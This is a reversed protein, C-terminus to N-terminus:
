GNLEAGLAATIRDFDDLSYYDVVIKGTNKARAPRIEVRTGVSDTLQREVDRIYPAKNASKRETVVIHSEQPSSATAFQELQRVSWSKRSTKRALDIQLKPKGALGALVKAHGFTLEEALLMQQVEDPLDLLRLYNAVTARPQGLRKGVEAQTLNFQDMYDRFATAREVPNLDSRQINEVLAWELMEQRSAKRVICPVAALEAKRAARLRREGAVLVFEDPKEGEAVILPQLIGQESISNALDTLEDENFERRPQYPNPTIKDVAIEMPAPPRAEAGGAVEAPAKESAPPAHSIYDAAERHKQASASNSILSSLGRGLRPKRTTQKSTSSM